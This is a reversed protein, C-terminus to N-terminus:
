GRTLRHPNESVSGGAEAGADLGAGTRDPAPM